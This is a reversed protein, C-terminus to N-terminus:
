KADPFLQELTDSKGIQLTLRQLESANMSEVLRLYKEPVSQFRSELLATSVTRLAKLEGTEL